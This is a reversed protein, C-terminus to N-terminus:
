SVIGRETRGRPFCKSRFWCHLILLKVLTSSHRLFPAGGSLRLRAYHFSFVRIARPDLEREDDYALHQRLPEGEVRRLNADPIARSKPSM